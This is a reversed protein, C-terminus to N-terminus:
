NAKSLFQKLTLYWEDINIGVLNENCLEELVCGDACCCNSAHSIMSSKKDQKEQYSISLYLIQITEVHISVKAVYVICVNHYECYNVNEFASDEDLGDTAKQCHRKYM